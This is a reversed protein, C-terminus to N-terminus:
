GSDYFSRYNGLSCSKQPQKPDIYATYWKVLQSIFYEKRQKLPVKRRSKTRHPTMRSVPSPTLRAFFLVKWLPTLNRSPNKQEEPRVNLRYLNVSTGNNGYREQRTQSVISILGSDQIRHLVRTVTAMSIGCDSAIERKAPKCQGSKGARFSLYAYVKMESPSLKVQFASTSCQFLRLKVQAANEVEKDTHERDQQGQSPAFDDTTLQPNDILIYDNSTQRGKGLFRYKVELLGKTCLERVARIVTSESMHCHKAINSRKYFSSRTQNNASMALFSYVKFASKSLNAQLAASNCLYFPEM